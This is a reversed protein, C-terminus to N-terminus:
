KQKNPDYEPVVRDEPKLSSPSGIDLKTRLFREAYQTTFLSILELIPFASFGAVMLIGDRYEYNLPIFSGIVNGIFFALFTNLLFGSIKFPRNQKMLTYLYSSIGGLGGLLGAVGFDYLKNLYHEM